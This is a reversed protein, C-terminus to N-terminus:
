RISSRTSKECKSIYTVSSTSRYYTSNNALFCVFIYSCICAISVLFYFGDEAERVGCKRTSDRASQRTEIGVRDCGKSQLGSDPDNGSVVCQLGLVYRREVCGV